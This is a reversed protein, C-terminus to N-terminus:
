FNVTKEVTKGKPITIEYTEVKGGFDKLGEVRVSYTGVALIFKKPNSSSSTYTRRTSVVKGTNKDTIKVLADVLGSSSNAGAMLIGTEYEITFTENKSSSVQIDSTRKLLNDGEIVMPEVTMEYDGPNVDFVEEEGYTRGGAVSKRDGKPFVKVVADWGEGNNLVKVSIKGGDFSFSKVYEKEAAVKFGKEYLPALDTNELASIELDYSGPPLFLEATDRYTRVGGVKKTTGAEYAIVMGDIGKGNKSTYFHLNGPPADVTNTTVQDLVDSLGESDQADFYSGDGAKAACKLADTEDDKLGFGVIHLKFPIGEKRAAKIVECLNGGCSEVGDTILIITAKEKSKRLKDIVQLASFALPTKGLPKIGKLAGTITSKNGAAVDVLFEVDECDGKKRHGYAVLGLKQEDPLKQVTKSLVDRAIEMKTSGELQGWMSGSADYIFYIPSQALLFSTIGLWLIPILFLRMPKM